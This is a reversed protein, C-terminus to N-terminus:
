DANKVSIDSKKLTALGFYFALPTSILIPGPLGALWFIIARVRWGVATGGLINPGVLAIVISLATLAVFYGLIVRDIMRVYRCNANAVDTKYSKDKTLFSYLWVILKNRM